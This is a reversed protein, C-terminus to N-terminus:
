KKQFRMDHSADFSRTVGESKNAHKHRDSLLCLRHCNSLCKNNNLRMLKQTTTELYVFTAMITIRVRGYGYRTM